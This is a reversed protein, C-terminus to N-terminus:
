SINELLKDVDASKVIKDFAELKELYNDSTVRYMDESMRRIIEHNFEHSHHRVDMYESLNMIWGEECQFDYIKVNPCKLLAEVVYKKFRYIEGFHGGDRYRVFEFISYPPFYVIWDIDTRKRIYSLIHSDFHLKMVTYDFNYGTEAFKENRCKMFDRLLEARGSKSYFHNLSDLRVPTKIKKICNELTTYNLVYKIKNSIDDTYLYDAIVNRQKAFSFYDFDFIIHKVKGDKFVRNLLIDYDDSMGGVLTFNRTSWKDQGAESFLSDIQQPEHNMAMSSGILIANYDHHKSIGPIELRADNIYLDSKRFQQYPDICYVVGGCIVLICLIISLTIIFLRRFREEM